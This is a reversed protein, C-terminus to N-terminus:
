FISIFIWIKTFIHVQAHDLLTIKDGVKDHVYAKYTDSRVGHKTFAQGYDVGSDQM